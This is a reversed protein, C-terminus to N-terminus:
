GSAVTTSQLQETPTAMVAAFYANELSSENAIGPQEGFTTRLEELTGFFKAHGADLILSHSCIDEVMALLHSSIIVAAGREAIQLISQKLVRIAQPDLGTMPEDLLLARPQSLYACCIALKQRMGRSLEVAATHRKSELEFIELLEVVRDAPKGIEYVSATFKLHQEVSLDNFLQPDDPVYATLNKAALPEAVLDFGGVSLHGSSSPIIGALTRLTTTKGAGNRGVLGLVQGSEVKFSLERVAITQQYAKSFQEVVIM